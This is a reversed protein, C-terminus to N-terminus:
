KKAPFPPKTRIDMLVLAEGVLSSGLLHLASPPWVTATLAIVAM